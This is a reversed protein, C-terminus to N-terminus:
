VLAAVGASFHPFGVALLPPCERIGVADLLHAQAKEVQQPFPELNMKIDKAETRERLTQQCDPSASPLLSGPRHVCEQSCPLSNTRTCYDSPECQGFTAVFTAPFKWKAGPLDNWDLWM